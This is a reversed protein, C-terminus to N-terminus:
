DARWFYHRGARRERRGHNATHSAMLQHLHTKQDDSLVDYLNALPVEISELASDAEQAMTRM